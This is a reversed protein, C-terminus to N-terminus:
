LAGKPPREIVESLAPWGDYGSEQGRQSMTWFRYVPGEGLAALRQEARRLLGQSLHKTDFIFGRVTGSHAVVVGFGEEDALRLVKRLVLDEPVREAQVEASLYGARGIAEVKGHEFGSRAWKLAERLQDQQATTYPERQRHHQETNVRGRGVMGVILARPVSGLRELLIGQRPHFAVVGPYMIGDSPEIASAIAAMDRPSVSLNYARAVARLSAVIDASSSAMGKGVPLITTLALTGGSTGQRELLLEVARLAKKRYSPVVVLPAGPQAAFTARTGWRIPITILFPTGDLDGQVLEGFTGPAFGWGTRYAEM